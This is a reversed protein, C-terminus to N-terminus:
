CLPRSVTKYQGYFAPPSYWFFFVVFFGSIDQWNSQSRLMWQPCTLSLSSKTKTSYRGWIEGLGKLLLSYKWNWNQDQRKTCVYSNDKEKPKVKTDSTMKQTHSRNIHRLRRFSSCIFPLCLWFLRELLVLFCGADVTDCCRPRSAESPM